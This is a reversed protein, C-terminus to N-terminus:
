KGPENLHIYAPPPIQEATTITTLSPITVQVQENTTIQHLDKKADGLSDYSPPAEEFMFPSHHANYIVTAIPASAHGTSVIPSDTPASQSRKRNYRYICYILTCLIVTFAVPVLIVLLILIHTADDFPKSRFIDRNNNSNTPIVTTPVRNDNGPRSPLQRFM